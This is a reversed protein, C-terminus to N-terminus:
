HQIARLCNALRKPDFGKSKWGEPDTDDDVDVPGGSWEIDSMLTDLFGPPPGSYEQEEPAREEAEVTDNKEDEM